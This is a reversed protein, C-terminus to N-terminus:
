KTLYMESNLCISSRYGNDLMWLKLDVSNATAICVDPTAYTKHYYRRVGSDTLYDKPHKKWSTDEAPPTTTPPKTGGGNNGGGDGNNAPPKASGGNGGSPKNGSSPKNAATGGNGNSPKNAPKEPEPEPEVVKETITVKFKETVENDNKDKATATLEYTGPKSMDYDGTITVELEGDVKDEAKIEHEFEAGEEFTLDKVNSLTPLETDEVKYDVEFVKEKKGLKATVETVFDGVEDTKIEFNELDLEEYNSAEADIIDILMVTLDELEVETGYEFTLEYNETFVLVPAKVELAKTLGFGVLAIVLVAVVAATVKGKTTSMYEKFKNTKKETM